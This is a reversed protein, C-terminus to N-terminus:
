LCIATLSNIDLSNINFFFAWWKPHFIGQQYSQSDDNHGPVIEPGSFYFCVHLRQVNM